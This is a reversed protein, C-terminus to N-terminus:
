RYYFVFFLLMFFWVLQMYFQWDLRVIFFDVVQYVVVVEVGDVLVVVVWIYVFVLISISSSEYDQVVGIGLRVRKVCYFGAMWWFIIFVFWVLYCFCNVQYLYFMGNNGGDVVIFMFVLVCFDLVLGYVM